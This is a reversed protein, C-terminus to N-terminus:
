DVHYGDQLPSIVEADRTRFRLSLRRGTMAIDDALLAIYNTGGVPPDEAEDSISSAAQEEILRRRRRGILEEWGLWERPQLIAAEVDREPVQSIEITVYDGDAATGHRIANYIAEQVAVRFREVAPVSLHETAFPIAKGEIFHTLATSWGPERRITARLRLRNEETVQLSDRTMSLSFESDSGNGHIRVVVLSQDDRPRATRSYSRCTSMIEAVIDQVPRDRHENVTAVLRAEGFINSVEDPSCAEVIGDSYLVLIDGAGIAVVAEVPDHMEFSYGDGIYDGAAMLRVPEAQGAKFLLAPHMGGSAYRAERKGLDIELFNMAVSIKGGGMSRVLDDAVQLERQPRGLGWSSQAAKLAFHVQLALLSAPLGHGDVDVMYVGYTDDSRTVIGYFDASITTAQRLEHALELGWSRYPSRPLNMIRMMNKRAYLIEPDEPRLDSETQARRRDIIELASFLDSRLPGKLRGLTVVIRDSLRLRDDTGMAAAARALWPVFECMTTSSAGDTLEDLFGRAPRLRSRFLDPRFVIPVLFDPQRAYLFTFLRNPWLAFLALYYLQTALALLVLFWLLVTPTSQNSWYQQLRDRLSNTPPAALSGATKLEVAGRLRGLAEQAELRMERAATTNVTNPFSDIFRRMFALSSEDARAVLSDMMHQYLTRSSDRVIRAPDSLASELYTDTLQRRDSTCKFLLGLMLLRIQADDSFQLRQGSRQLSRPCPGASVVGALAAVRSRPLPAVTSFIFLDDVAEQSVTSKSFVRGFEAAEAYSKIGRSSLQAEFQQVFTTATSRSADQARLPAAVPSLWHAALVLWITAGARSAPQVIVATECAKGTPTM